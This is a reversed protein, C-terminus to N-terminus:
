LKVVIKKPTFAFLSDWRDKIVDFRAHFYRGKRDLVPFDKYKSPIGTGALERTKEVEQKIELWSELLQEKVAAV